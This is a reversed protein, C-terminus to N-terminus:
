SVAMALWTPQDVKKTEAYRGIRDYIPVINRPAPSTGARAFPADILAKLASSLRSMSKRQKLSLVGQSSYM